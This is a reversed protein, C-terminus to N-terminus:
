SSPSLRMTGRSLKTGKRAFGALGVLALKLSSIERRDAAALDTYLELPLEINEALTMSSWLAGQQFLTGMNQKLKEQEAEPLTWFDHDDVKISGKSPAKLGMISRMVTTKGCGSGGMITFIDGRRIEFNLDKQIIFDGYALTLDSVKVHVPESGTM